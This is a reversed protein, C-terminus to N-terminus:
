YNLFNRIKSVTNLKSQDFQLWENGDLIMFTNDLNEFTISHNNLIKKIQEITLFDNEM